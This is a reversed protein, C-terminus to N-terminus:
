RRSVPSWVVRYRGFGSRRAARPTKWSVPFETQRGFRGVCGGEEPPSAAEGDSDCGNCNTRTARAPQTVLLLAIDDVIKLFLVTDEPFPDAGSTQPEGVVLATQEGRFSPCEASPQQALERRDHRRIHQERTV